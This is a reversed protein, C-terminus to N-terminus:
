KQPKKIAVRKPVELIESLKYRKLSGFRHVPILARNEYNWLTPKSIGLISCVEEQTLFTEKQNTPTQGEKLDTFKEQILEKLSQIESSLVEFPNNIKEM